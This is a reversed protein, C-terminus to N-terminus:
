CGTWEPHRKELFARTGEERDASTGAVSLAWAENQLQVDLDRRTVDDVLRKTLELAVSPGSAIRDALARAEGLLRDPEVVRNVLGWCEAREADVTDGTLMM